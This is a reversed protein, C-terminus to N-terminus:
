RQGLWPARVAQHGVYLALRQRRRESSAGNRAQEEALVRQQRDIAEEFRGAEALAMALTEEHDLNPEIEVVREALTVAREGNRVEPDPCTALLRALLDTLAPHDPLRLLSAELAERAPRYSGALVLTMGRGLHSRPDDPALEVLAAFTNAAEAYDGSRALQEALAARARPDAPALAVAARLHALIEAHPMVRPDLMALRLHAESREADSAQESALRLHRTAAELHGLDAEIAGLALRAGPVAPDVSLVRELERVAQERKGEQALARAWLVRTPLDDPDIEVARALHQAAGEDDGRRGLMVALNFHADFFDPRIELARRLHGEAEALAGLEVQARALNYHAEANEPDSALIEEFIAAAQEPEGRLRADVGRFLLARHSVSLADLRAALPDPFAIAVQKSKALEARARDLDGLSRYALGLHYHVVTGEPQGPLAAEFLEAAARPDGRAALVSGMGFRAASSSPDRELASAYVREADDLAGERVYLDGARLLAPVDGPRLALAAEVSSRAEGLDGERVYLITQYYPWRFDTPEQAAMQRLCPEAAGMLEYRLYLLCLEGLAETLDSHRARDAIMKEVSLRSAVLQDRVVAEFDDLVPVPIAGLDIASPGAGSALPPRAAPPPPQARLPAVALGLLLLAARNL